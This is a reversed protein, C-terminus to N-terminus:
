CYVPNLYSSFEFRFLYKNSSIKSFWHESGLCVSFMNFLLPKSIEWSFMKERMFYCHMSLSLSWACVHIKIFTM